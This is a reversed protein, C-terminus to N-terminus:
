RVSRMRGERILQQVHLATPEDVDFYAYMPDQSVVTTLLTQDAVVLNGRTILTRGIRGAIPSRVKTWELNLQAQELNARAANLNARAQDRQALAQELDQQSVAATGVLREYRRYVAQQYNLNAQQLKVQAEAQNVAAQYQRPDIEYLVDNKNVEAGEKFNVTQLYGSVRARVQLSDVAATRGTYDEYDTVDRQVPYSVTVTLPGTGPGESPARSCGSLGLCLGFWLGLGTLPALVNQSMIKSM